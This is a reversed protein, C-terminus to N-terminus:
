FCVKSGDFTSVPNHNNNAAQQWFVWTALLKWCGIAVSCCCFLPGLRRLFVWRWGLRDRRDERALKLLGLVLDLIDLHMPPLRIKHVTSQPKNHKHHKQHAPQESSNSHHHAAAPHPHSPNYQSSKRYTATTAAHHNSSNHEKMDVLVEWIMSVEVTVSIEAADAKVREVIESVRIVRQGLNRMWSERRKERASERRM